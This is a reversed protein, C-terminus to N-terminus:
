KQARWVVPFLEHDMPAGPRLDLGVFPPSKEGERTTYRMNEGLFRLAVSQRECQSPVESQTNGHITRFDFAVVDGVSMTWSLKKFEQNDVDPLDEYLGAPLEYTDRGNFKKPTFLKNLRHSGAIFELKNSEDIPTLPIWFSLGQDGDVCYYPLDQHWPTKKVTGKLKYFIHDHFFRIETANLLLGAYHALPSEHIVQSYEEIRQWNCYDDRFLGPANPTTYFCAHPGPDQINKAFAIKLLNIYKPALINRLVVVGNQWFFDQDSPSLIIM